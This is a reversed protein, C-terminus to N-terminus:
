VTSPVSRTIWSTLPPGSTTSARQLRAPPGILPECTGISSARVPISSAFSRMPSFPSRTSAKAARKTSSPSSSAIAASGIDSVRSRANTPITPIMSGSRGDDFAATCVASPAPMSTRMIVPSWATVACAIPSDSPSPGPAILPM